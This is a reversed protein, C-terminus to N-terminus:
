LYGLNRLQERLKPDIEEGTTGATFLVGPNPRQEWHKRWAACQEKNKESLNHLEHPDEALDFLLEHHLKGHFMWKTKSGIVASWLYAPDRSIHAYVRERKPPEAGLYAALDVGDLYPPKQAGAATAITPYLDILSTLNGVARGAYQRKPFRIILPVHLQEAYLDGGHLMNKHDGFAEGHDATIIVMMNDDGPLMDLLKRVSADVGAIEADYLDILLQMKAPHDYFYGSTVKPIFQDKIMPKVDALKVGPRWNDLFPRVPLYPHHPDFYHVYLFYPKGRRHLRRLKKSWTKLQKNVPKRNAFNFVEYHEFGQAMGYKPDMHTNATVGLTEYGAKQLSEAITLFADSMKAQTKIGRQGTTEATQIDHRWPYVGAFMSAMSPVTWSAPAQCNDFQVADKAFFDLNPTTPRTYGYSGVHDARLTDIVILVVHPKDPGRRGFCSAGLAM